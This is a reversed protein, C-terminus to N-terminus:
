RELQMKKEVSGDDYIYFLIQNPVPYTTRGLLDTITLLEKPKTPPEPIGTTSTVTIYGIKTETDSGATNTATLVVDYTGASSYTVAPNQNTSTSPTGGSFQWSWATPNNTSIDTFTISSGETINTSTALFDAVPASLPIGSCANNCDESFSTQSDINAWNATSWTANDVEICSLNPNNTAYFSTMNTNNGNKVNLCTLQNSDCDL